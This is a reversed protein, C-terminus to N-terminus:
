NNLKEEIKKLRAELIENQKKLTDNETKLEQIAKVISDQQLKSFISESM